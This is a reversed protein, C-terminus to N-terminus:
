SQSFIGTEYDEIITRLAESTEEAHEEEALELLDRLRELLIEDM